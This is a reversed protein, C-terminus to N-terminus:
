VAASIVPWLMASSMGGVSWVLQGLDQGLQCRALGDLV